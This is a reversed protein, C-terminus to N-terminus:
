NPSRHEFGSPWRTVANEVYISYCIRTRMKVSLIIINFLYLEFLSHFNFAYTYKVFLRKRYIGPMRSSLALWFHVSVSVSFFVRLEVFTHFAFLVAVGFLRCRISSSLRPLVSFCSADADTVASRCQEGRILVIRNYFSIIFRYVHRM